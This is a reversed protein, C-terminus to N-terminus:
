ARTPELGVAPLFVSVKTGEGPKSEIELSGGHNRIITNSMSLGLGSGGLERNTTFFPDKVKSLLNEPIGKGTDAIEVCILSKQADRCSRVQIKQERNELSQCANQILNVFVQELKQKDGKVSPLKNDLIVAFNGTKKTIYTELLSASSQIVSNINIPERKSTDEKRYFDKLNNVIRDIRQAGESIRELYKPMKKAFDSYNIGGILFDGNEKYYLDMIPQTSKWAENLFSINSSIAQNPNNIEHAVGAVLVGLSALKDAQLLQQQHKQALIRSEVRATIDVLSALVCQKGNLTLTSSFIEVYKTKGNELVIRFQYDTSKAKGQEMKENYNKKVTKRDESHIFSMFVEKDAGILKELPEEILISFAPNAYKISDDQIIIISLLSNESILRFKEESERLRKEMEFRVLSIEVTTYLENQNIPKLIYGYPNTKKIQQVTKEDSYATLYVIPLSYKEQIRKVTEIGNIPGKLVVDMLVLDPISEEIIRLAEEGTSGIGAVSYGKKELFYRLDAAIIREDEVILINKSAM